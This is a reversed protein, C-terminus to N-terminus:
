CSGSRLSRQPVTPAPTSREPTPRAPNVPFSQVGIRRGWRDVYIIEPAYRAAPTKPTPEHYYQQDKKEVPPAPAFPAQPPTPAQPPLVGLLVTLLIANM